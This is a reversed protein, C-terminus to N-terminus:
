ISPNTRLLATPSLTGSTAFTGLTSPHRAYERNAIASAPEFKRHERATSTASVDM